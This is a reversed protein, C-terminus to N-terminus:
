NQETIAWPRNIALAAGVLLANTQTMLSIPPLLKTSSFGKMGIVFAARQTYLDFQSPNLTGFIAAM